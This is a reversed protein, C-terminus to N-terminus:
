VGTHGFGGGRDEGHEHVNNTEVFNGQYNKELVFQAIRDGMKIKYEENSFNDVIVGIEDKYNTDVTGPTNSIRMRTKHSMGSRPRIAIAWGFPIAMALGTKVITGFSNAPITIDECAYIDAGQDGGSAYSPLKANEHLKQVYITPTELDWFQIMKDTYKEVLSYFSDLFEQKNPNSYRTKYGNQILNYLTDKLLENYDMMQSRSIGAAKNAAVAQGIQYDAQSGSLTMTIAQLALDQALAFKEDEIAMIDDLSETLQRLLDSIFDDM